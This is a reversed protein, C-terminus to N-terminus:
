DEFYDYNEGCMRVTEAFCEEFREMTVNNYYPPLRLIDKCFCEDRWSVITSLLGKCLASAADFEWERAGNPYISWGTVKAVSGYLGLLRYDITNGILHERFYKWTDLFLIKFAELDFELGTLADYLAEWRDELEERKEDSKDKM